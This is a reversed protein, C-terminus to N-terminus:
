PKTKALVEKARAIAAEVSSADSVAEAVMRDLVAMVEPLDPWSPLARSQAHLEELRAVPPLKEVVAEDNWTSRRCGLVGTLTRAKDASKGACHKVFRWALDANPSKAPVALVWYSSQTLPEGGPGHPLPAVGAPNVRGPREPEADAESGAAEEEDGTGAADGEVEALAAFGVPAVAMVLGGERFTRGVDYLDLERVERHVAYRDAVIRRYTELSEAVEPADLRMRGDEWMTGGRSAVMAALVRGPGPGGAAAPLATGYMFDEPRHLFAALRHLDAWTEPVQMPYGYKAQHVDRLMQDEFMRTRYVLCLLGDHYPLGLVADDFQQAALLDDCYDDPYDSPGDRRLRPALDLLLKSQHAEALWGSHLVVADFEGAALAGRDFLEDHLSRYEPAVIELKLASGAADRVAAWERGITEDFPAFAPVAVRFVASRDLLGEDSKGTSRESGCGCGAAFVLATLAVLRNLARFSTPPPSSHPVLIHLVLINPLPSPIVAHRAADTGSAGIKKDEM